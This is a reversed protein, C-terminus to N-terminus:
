CSVQDQPLGELMEISTAAWFRLITLSPWPGLGLGASCQGQRIVKQTQAALNRELNWGLPKPRRNFVYNGALKSLTAAFRIM